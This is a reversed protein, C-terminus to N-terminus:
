KWLGKMVERAIAEIFSVVVWGAFLIGVVVALIFIAIWFVSMGGGGWTSGM